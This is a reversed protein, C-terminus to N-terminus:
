GSVILISKYFSLLLVLVSIFNSIAFPVRLSRLVFKVLLGVMLSVILIIALQFAMHDMTNRLLSFYIQNM